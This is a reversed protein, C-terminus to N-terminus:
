SRQVTHGDADTFRLDDDAKIHLAGGEAVDHLTMAITRARAVADGQSPFHLGPSTVWASHPDHGPAGSRIRHGRFASWLGAGFRSPEACYTPDSTAALVCTVYANLSVSQEAAAVALFRHMDPPMRVLFKGSYTRDAMPEPPEEGAEIMEAVTASILEILGDLAAGPTPALWSLSPFEAATAVHEQDEASWQVRFAYRETHIM